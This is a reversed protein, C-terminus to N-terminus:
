QPRCVVAAACVSLRSSTTLIVVVVVVVVEVIRNNQRYLESPLSRRRTIYLRVHAGRSSRTRPGSRQAIWAAHFPYGREQRVGRRVCM